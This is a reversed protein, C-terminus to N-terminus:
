SDGGESRLREAIHEYKDRLEMYQEPTIRGAGFMEEVQELRRKVEQLDFAEGEIVEEPPPEGEEPQPEGEQPSQPAEGGPYDPAVPLQRPSLPEALGGVAEQVIDKIQYTTEQIQEIMADNAATGQATIDVQTNGWAPLDGEEYHEEGTVVLHFDVPQLGLYRRGKIDWARHHVHAAARSVTPPNEEIQKVYYGQDALLGALASTLRYDPIAGPQWVEARDSAEQPYGWSAVSLEFHGNIVTENSATSTTAVYGLADYVGLVQLDALSGRLVLKFSGSLTDEAVLPHELQISFNPLEKNNEPRVRRWRHVNTEPGSAGRRMPAVGISPKSKQVAGWAPNLMLTLHEVRHLQQQLDSRLQLCLEIEQRSGRAVFNATINVPSASQPKGNQRGQVVERYSWRREVTRNAKEDELYAFSAAKDELKCVGGNWDAAPSSTMEVTSGARLALFGLAVDAHRLALQKLPRFKLPGFGYTGRERSDRWRERDEQSLHGSLVIEGEVPGVEISYNGDAAQHISLDVQEERVPKKWTPLLPFPARQRRAALSYFSWHLLQGIGGLAVGLGILWTPLSIQTYRAAIGAWYGVESGFWGKLSATWLGGMLLLFAGWRLFPRRPSRVGHQHAECHVGEDRGSRDALGMGEFELNLRGSPAPSVTSARACFTAGCHHCVRDPAADSHCHSCKVVISQPYSISPSQENRAEPAM